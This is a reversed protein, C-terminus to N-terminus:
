DTTKEALLMARAQADARDAGEPDTQRRHLVHGATSLTQLYFDRLIREHTNLSGDPRKETSNNPIKYTGVETYTRVQDNYSRVSFGMDAFAMCSAKMELDGNDHSIMEFHDDLRQNSADRTAFSRVVADGQRYEITRGEYLLAVSHVLEAIAEHPNRELLEGLIGDRIAELEIHRTSTPAEELATEVRYFEEMHDFMTNFREDVEGQTLETHSVVSPIELQTKM